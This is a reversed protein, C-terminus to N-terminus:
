EDDFDVNEVMKAKKNNGSANSFRKLMSASLSKDGGGLFGDDDDDDLNEYQQAFKRKKYDGAASSVNKYAKYADITDVKNMVNKTSKELDRRYDKSLEQLSAIYGYDVPLHRGFFMYTVMIGMSLARQLDDHIGNIRAGEENYTSTVYASTGRRCTTREYMMLAAIQASLMRKVDAARRGLTKNVCVIDKIYGISRTALIEQLKLDAALRSQEGTHFGYIDLTERLFVYNYFSPNSCVSEQLRPGELGLNNEIVFLITSNKFLPHRRIGNYVATFAYLM